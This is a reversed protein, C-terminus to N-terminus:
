RVDTAPLEGVLIAVGIGNWISQGSHWGFGIDQDHEISETRGGVIIVQAITQRHQMGRWTQRVDKVVRGILDGEVTAAGVASVAILNHGCGHGVGPLADYEAIVAIKPGDKKGKRRAVFATPMNYIGKEVTFGHENLVSTLKEFAKFEESGLEPNEYLYQAIDELLGRKQDIIKIVQSKYEELKSMDIM